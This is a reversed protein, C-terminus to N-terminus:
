VVDGLDIDTDSDEIQSSILNDIGAPERGIATSSPTGQKQMAEKNSPINSPIVLLLIIVVLLIIVIAWILKKNM